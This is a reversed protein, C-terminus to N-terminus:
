FRYRLVLHGFQKVKDPNEAKWEACLREYVPKDVIIKGIFFDLDSKSFRKKFKLLSNNENSDSGGGLHLRRCSQAKAFKIIEWIMLNNPYLNLYEPDSGSLHYHATDGDIILICSSLPKDDKKVSVVYSQDMFSNHFKEYYNNDFFFYDDASLRTMTKEYLDKFVQLEKKDQSIEIKLDNQRAKRIVNRHKSHIQNQWIEDESSDLPVIITKRDFMVRCSTELYKHNGITPDFRVFGAIISERKLESILADYATLLFDKEDTTSLCGGYGYVTEFDYYITGPIARKLIPFILRNDNKEFIFCRPIDKDTAHSRIYKETFYISKEQYCELYRDWNEVIKSVQM